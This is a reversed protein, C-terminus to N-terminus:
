FPFKLEVGTVKAIRSIHREATAYSAWTTAVVSFNGAGALPGVVM